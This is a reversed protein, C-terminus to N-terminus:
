LPGGVFVLDYNGLLLLYRTMLDLSPEVGLSVSQSVTLRLTVKVKVQSSKIFIQDYVGSPHKVGLCVPRNVTPRSM